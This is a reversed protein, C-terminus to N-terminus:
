PTTEQEQAALWARARRAVARDATYPWIEMILKRAEALARNLAKGEDYTSWKWGELEAEQAASHALLADIDTRAHAIFRADGHPNRNCHDCVAVVEDRYYDIPDGDRDFSPLEGSLPRECEEDDPGYVVGVIDAGDGKEGTTEFAWPGPTAKDARERIRGLREKTLRVAADNPTTM